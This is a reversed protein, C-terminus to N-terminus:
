WRSGPYISPLVTMSTAVDKLDDTTSDEAPVIVFLKINTERLKQKLSEDPEGTYGDTLIISRRVNPYAQLIHEAVCNINTGGTTRVYGTKLHQWPLPEVVTSFQYVEALGKRVYPIILTLLRPLVDGMSGSVDLYIYAKSPVDPVRARTFGPQGWLTTPAGLVRKAPATRDRANPMVNISAIGPIDRKAKRRQRSSGPNMCRRLINAFAR